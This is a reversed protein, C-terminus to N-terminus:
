KISHLSVSFFVKRVNEYTVVPMIHTKGKQKKRYAFLDLRHNKHSFLKYIQRSQSTDHWPKLYILAYNSCVTRTNAIHIVCETTCM